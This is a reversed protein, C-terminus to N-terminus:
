AQSPQQKLVRTRYYDSIEAKRADEQEPSPAQEANLLVAYSQWPSGSKGTRPASSAVMTAGDGPRSPAFPEDPDRPDGWKNTVPESRGLYFIFLILGGILPVMSVLMWFASRGTDHLRRVCLSLAPILTLLAIWFTALYAMHTFDGQEMALQASMLTQMDASGAVIYTLFLALQVWWFEGRTARGRFNLANVFFGTLASVIGIM